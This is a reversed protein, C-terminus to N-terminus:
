NLNRGIYLYHVTKGEVKSLTFQSLGVQALTMNLKDFYTHLSLNLLKLVVSTGRPVLM